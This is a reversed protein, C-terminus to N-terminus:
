STGARQDTSPTGNAITTLAAHAAGRARTAPPKQEGPEDGQEVWPPMVTWYPLEAYRRGSQFPTASARRSRSSAVRATTAYSPWNAVGDSASNM